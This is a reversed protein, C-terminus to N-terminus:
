VVVRGGPRLQHGHLLETRPNLLLPGSLSDLHVFIDQHLIFVADLVDQHRLDLALAFSDSRGPLKSEVEAM